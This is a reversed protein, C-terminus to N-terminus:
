QHPVARLEAPAVDVCTEASGLPQCEPDQDDQQQETMEKALEGSESEPAAEFCVDDLQIAGTFVLELFTSMREAFECFEETSVDIQLRKAERELLDRIRQHPLRARAWAPRLRESAELTARAVAGFGARAKRAGHGVGRIATLFWRDSEAALDLGHGLVGNSLAEWWARSRQIRNATKADLDDAM